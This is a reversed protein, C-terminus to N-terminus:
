LPKIADSLHLKWIFNSTILMMQIFACGITEKRVFLSKIFCCGIDSRLARTKLNTKGLVRQCKLSYACWACSGRSRKEWYHLHQLEPGFVRRGGLEVRLHQLKATISYNLLKCYLQIRFQLHTLPKKQLQLM